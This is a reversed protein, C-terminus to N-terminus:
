RREVHMWLGGKPQLTVGPDVAVRRTPDPRLRFRRVVTAMIVAAEVMAMHNGICLHPGGGFPFHAYRHRQRLADPRFREPDFDDPREWWAPHRQTVYPSLVIQGGAPVTWGGLTDAAVARRTVIWAPPFLRMAEQFVMGTYPLADLAAATVPGAEVATAERALTEDVADDGGVLHWTWALASAVTEHGAILMTMLEDRLQRDTFAAGTEEDRADMLRGLFDDAGSTGTRRAAIAGAIARDLEALARRFRRNGRTPLWRPVLGFTRARFMLHHLVTLTAQALRDARDGIEVSFLASAVVQLTVHMMEAAIDIPTGRDAAPEWRDAMADARAAILSAFGLVRARHFSPQEMRRRRLWAAGDSTLLGDGTIEALLRYQFTDKSYNGQNTVLVRQVDDPSTVLFFRLPGVPYRAVPGHDQAVQRLFEHPGDRLRLLERRSPRRPGPPATM